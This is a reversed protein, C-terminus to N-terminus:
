GAGLMVFVTKETKTPKSITLLTPKWERALRGKALARRRGVRAAMAERWATARDKRAKLLRRAELLRAVPPAFTTPERRWSAAQPTPQPRACCSAM